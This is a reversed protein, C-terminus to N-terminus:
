PAAGVEAVQPRDGNDPPLAVAALLERLLRAFRPVGLAAAQDEPPANQDAVQSILRWQTESLTVKLGAHQGLAVLFSAFDPDMAGRGFRGEEGPDFRVGMPAPMGGAGFAAA